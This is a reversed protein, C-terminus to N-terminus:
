LDRIEGRPPQGPLLTLIAYTRTDAASGPNILLVDRQEEILPRHTHGFLSVACGAQLARFVQLDLGYKVRTTHGHCLFIKIGGLSIVNEKSLDSFWDNNGPVACLPTYPLNRELEEADRLCDGLHIIQDPKERRIAEEVGESEGHTDSLIFIKM